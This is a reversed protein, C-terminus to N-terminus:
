DEEDDDWQHLRRETDTYPKMREHYPDRALQEQGHMRSAEHEQRLSARERKELADKWAVAQMKADYDSAPVAYVAEWAAQLHSGLEQTSAVPLSSAREGAERQVQEYWDSCEDCLTRHITQKHCRACAFTQMTKGKALRATLGIIDECVAPQAALAAILESKTASRKLPIGHGAGKALLEGRTKAELLPRAHQAASERMQKLYTAVAQGKLAKVYASREDIFAGTWGLLRRLEDVGLRITNCLHALLADAPHDWYHEYWLYGMSRSTVNSKVESDAVLGAAWEVFWAELHTGRVFAAVSSPREPPAVAFGSAPAFFSHGPEELLDRVRKERQFVIYIDEDTLTLQWARHSMEWSAVDVERYPFGVWAAGGQSTFHAVGGNDFLETLVLDRVQLHEVNSLSHSERMAGALGAIARILRPDAAIRFTSTYVRKREIGPMLVTPKYVKLSAERVERFLEEGLFQRLELELETDNWAVLALSRPPLKPLVALVGAVHRELDAQAIAERQEEISSAQAATYDLVEWGEIAAVAAAIARVVELHIAKIKWSPRAWERDSRPIREGMEKVLRSSYRPATVLLNEEEYRITIMDTPKM